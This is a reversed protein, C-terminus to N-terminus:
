FFGHVVCCPGLNWDVQLPHPQGMLLQAAVISVTIALLASTTVLAGLLTFSYDPLAIM